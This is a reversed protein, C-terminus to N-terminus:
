APTVSGTAASTPATAVVSTHAALDFIRRRGRTFLVALVDIWLFPGFTLPIRRVIAQRLSVATGDESVTRIRALTKGPTTGNTAELLAVGFVSWALALPTALNWYGWGGDLRLGAPLTVLLPGGDAIDLVAVLVTAVALPAHDVLAALARAGPAAPTALDVRSLAAAAERPSGLRELAGDLDGSATADRLHAELEALSEARQDPSGALWRGVAELYSEIM